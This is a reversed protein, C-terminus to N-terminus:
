PLVFLAINDRLNDDILLIEPQLLVSAEVVLPYLLHDAFFVSLCENLGVFEARLTLKQPM